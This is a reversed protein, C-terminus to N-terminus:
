DMKQQMIHNCQHYLLAQYFVTDSKYLMLAASFCFLVSSVFFVHYGVKTAKEYTKESLTHLVVSITLTGSGLSSSPAGDNGIVHEVMQAIVAYNIYISLM